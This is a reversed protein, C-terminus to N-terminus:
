RAAKRGNCSRCLVSLEDRSKPRVHDVTLEQAAVIHPPRGWGPCLPGHRELWQVRVLRSVESWDGRYHDRIANRVSECAGCRDSLAPIRRGCRCRHTPRSPM